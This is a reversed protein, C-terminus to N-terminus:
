RDAQSTLLRVRMQQHHALGVDRQAQMTGPEVWPDHIRTSWSWNTLVLGVLVLVVGALVCRIATNANM